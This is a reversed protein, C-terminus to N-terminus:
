ALGNQALRWCHIKVKGPVNAGWLTLWGQHESCNLSSSATGASLRKLHRKLHYVSRVSFVGNKTYNWALYDDTVAHGVHIKLIDDVDGEFFVENLKDINWGGGEPLLLENVKEVSKDPRHCIPRKLSSRPIWNQNWVDIKTGDGVRWILGEKLLDRGFFISKWTYSARKPCAASLFDGEKFYRACLVRACLSNPATVLRWAQKALLAQNFDTYDRFGMGGTRKPVCM